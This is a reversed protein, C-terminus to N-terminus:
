WSAGFAILVVRGRLHSLRLAKGPNELDPGEFDPAPSKWWKSWYIGGASSVLNKLAAEDLEGWTPSVAVLLSVVVLTFIKAFM